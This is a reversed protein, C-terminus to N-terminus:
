CAARWEVVATTPMDLLKSFEKFLAWERWLLVTVHWGGDNTLFLSMGVAKIAYNIFQCTPTVLESRYALKENFVSM